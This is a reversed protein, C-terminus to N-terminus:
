RECRLAKHLIRHGDPGHKQPHGLVLLGASNCSNRRLASRVWKLVVKIRKHGQNRHGANIINIIHAPNTYRNHGAKGLSHSPDSEGIGSEYGVPLYLSLDVKTRPLNEPLNSPLFTRGRPIGLKVNFTLRM